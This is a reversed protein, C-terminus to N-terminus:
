DILELSQLTRMLLIAAQARTANASPAFAGKNDGQMIGRSELLAADAKAWDPISSGDSFRALGNMTVNASPDGGEAVRIAKAILVAMEARNIAENPASLRGAGNTDGFVDEGQASTLGLGRVLLATFESRTIQQGPAFRTGDVGKIILKSAMAEIEKEAWHGSVDAFDKSYEIVSFIGNSRSKIELAPAGQYETKVAPVFALQGNEPNFMVATAQRPDVSAKIPIIRAIYTNGIEAMETEKGNSLLVIKFELPGNGAASAGLDAISGEVRQGTEGSVPGVSIRIRAEEPLNGSEKVASILSALPLRFSALSMNVSLTVAKEGAASSALESVPLVVQTEGTLDTVHISLQGSGNSAAAALAKKLEGPKVTVTNVERGSADKTKSVQLEKGTLENAPDTPAQEAQSAPSSSSGTGSSGGGSNGGNGNGNGGSPKAQEVIRGDVVPSVTGGLAGVHEMFIEYDPYGLDEHYAGNAIAQAFSAYGDGGNAVFSNTALRYTKSLNLPVYASGQKIQVDFVKNGAPGNPDWKFKMGAVQPFKGPLDALKAGSIGNELGDKLQQGTVDLVFLTNGFPMVTRLEGMTIDGQDISARIGGGNMIAIDANKLQKAKSLMGDAILNGLNTEKSRVNKREGDLTVAAVGVVQKKLEELEANYPALMNKFAEDEAVANDVTILSGTTGGPGTLVNGQEDLVLDVRGLYKGWENAQVIVTPTKEKPDIVIEPQDLKTHTHGGVILDIGEVEAALVKDRGYGLHSLAIITNLGEQEMAAVTERASVTADKFVVDKGPSSTEKTDETTMGFVGVKHGDVNLVVYPYVGSRDASATGNVAMEKPAGLLPAMNKDRSFDINSSVLPFGANKVFDALVQTGKDFEHNGFTMADYGMANMFALDASGQWKTFYLDGSFVDGADVLISSGGEARVQQVLTARRAVDALHAHTDNTHMVTLKWSADSGSGVSVVAEATGYGDESTATIVASGVSVPTVNGDADVMAVGSNSSTWTVATGGGQVPEVAATLKGPAGGETLSLSATNLTVKTVGLELVAVTGGVENAVLLLPRGTPSSPAPIFELGEPGTDTNLGAAFNRTNTYNVFEPQTPNTVDYVMVGGIRELGIFAFARNGVKGVTVYEPEAGKKPSRDDKETKSNSVNFYDPLREGTIREFDSGSDYVLSMDSANWVSFSRGGYMYVGDSGMDGAAEVKGYDSGHSNLFVAAASAPDLGSLKSVKTPNERGPWETADGENATFVYTEGGFSYTDIGDPMYMGFFPVSELKITGDNILDLENGPLSFDKFGLGRVSTVTGSGIDITAIANNEQLSVYATSQDESLSIYEPELDHLADAKTGSGTIKGSADAAGRIHVRDDIVAPNDFKVHTIKQVATDVVTVSGEPDIGAERPEGEDATLIYRGDSTFKVMDPQVGAEYSTLLNGDYDMVLIKGNKSPDAEQVAAAITKTVTNIDVSTLDGYVFGGTEALQRVEITKEKSLPGTAALPVIDITPPSSSGNVLYFKGNDKNYKVIEAVGGDKNTTGTSYSAIKNMTLTDKAAPAAPAQVAAAVKLELKLEASAAPSASDEVRIEVPYVGESGDEPVGSITGTSSDLTLGNALGNASFAYPAQGGYAAITVTYPTGVTAEPLTIDTIGLDPQASAQIAGTTTQSDAAQDAAEARPAAPFLFGGAMLEVSLCLALLRTWKWKRRKKM